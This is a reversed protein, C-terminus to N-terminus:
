NTRSYFNWDIWITSRELSPQFILHPSTFEDNTILKRSIIFWLYIEIVRDHSDLVGSNIQYSSLCHAQGSWGRGTYSRKRSEIYARRWKISLQLCGALKERKRIESLKSIGLSLEMKSWLELQQMRQHVWYQSQASWHAELPFM